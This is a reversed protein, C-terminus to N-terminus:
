LSWDCTRIGCCLGVMDLKKKMKIENEV